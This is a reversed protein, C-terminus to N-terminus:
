AKYEDPFFRHLIVKWRLEGAKEAAFRRLDEVSKMAAIRYREEATCRFLVKRPETIGFSVLKKEARFLRNRGYQNRILLWAPYGLAAIWFPWMTLRPLWFSQVVQAALLLIAPLMFFVADLQRIFCNGLYRRLRSPSTQYAFFEDMEWDSLEHRAAHCLEHAMLERRCYIFFRQKKRFSARIFFVGLPSETDTVLCGGWLLGVNESLFFGPFRKFAFGYLKSTVEAAEELIEPSIREKEYVKLTEFVTAEGTAALKTDLEEICQKKAELRARYAMLDEGPGPFYGAEDWQSLIVPDASEPLELDNLVHM